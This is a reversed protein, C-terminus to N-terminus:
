RSIVTMEGEHYVFFHDDKKNYLVAHYTEKQLEILERLFKRTEHSSDALCWLAFPAEYVAWNNDLNLAIFSKGGYYLLDYAQYFLTEDLLAPEITEQCPAATTGFIRCVLPRAEYIGCHEHGAEEQLFPCLLSGDNEDQLLGVRERFFNEIKQPPWNKEMYLMIYTFETYSMLISGYCCQKCSSSCNYEEKDKLMGKVREVRELAFINLPEPRQFIGNLTSFDYGLSKNM